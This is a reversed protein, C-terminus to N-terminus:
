ALETSQTSKSTMSWWRIGVCYETVNLYYKSVISPSFIYGRWSINCCKWKHPSLRVYANRVASTDIPEADGGAGFVSQYEVANM